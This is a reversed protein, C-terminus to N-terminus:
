YTCVDFSMFVRKLSYAIRRGIVSVSSTKKQAGLLGDLDEVIARLEAEGRHLDKLQSIM